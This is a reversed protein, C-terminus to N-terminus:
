FVLFLQFSPSSYSGHIATWLLHFYIALYDCISRFESTIKQYLFGMVWPLLAIVKSSSCTNSIPNWQLAHALLWYVHFSCMILWFLPIWSWGSIVSVFDGIDAESSHLPLLLHLHVSTVREYASWSLNCHGQEKWFEQSTKWIILCPTVGHVLVKKELYLDM